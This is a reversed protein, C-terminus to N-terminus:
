WSSTATTREAWAVSALTLMAQRGRKARMLVGFCITSKPSSRSRSAILVMPSNLVLALFTMASLWASISL